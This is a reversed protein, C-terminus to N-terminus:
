GSTCTRRAGCCRGARSRIRLQLAQEYTRMADGLRGQALRIDALAIACGFADAVHGVRRLGAMCDAYARHAAELDGSTWYALGLLGAAAARGLHDDEPSLSSRGGPTGWPAPCTAGLWPWRPGTCRSRGRSGAFSRTTSSSWGRRRPKRDRCATGTTTDLWREADQLRAEVGELEGGLLLAGAFGVSLM